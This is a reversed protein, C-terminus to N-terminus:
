QTCRHFFRRKWDPHRNRSDSGFGCNYAARFTFVFGYNVGFHSLPGEAPGIRPPQSFLLDVGFDIFSVITPSRNEGMEPRTFLGDITERPFRGSRTVRTTYWLFRLQQYSTKVIFRFTISSKFDTIRMIEISIEILILIM